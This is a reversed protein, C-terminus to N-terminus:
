PQRVFHQAPETIDATPGELSFSRSYTASRTSTHCTCRCYESPVYKGTQYAGLFPSVKLRRNHFLEAARIPRTDRLWSLSKERNYFIEIYEFLSHHAAQYTLEHFHYTLETKLLHFFSKGVANDWCDGKREHEACLRKPGGVPAPRLGSQSRPMWVNHRRHRLVSSRGQWDHFGSCSVRMVRCLLTVPHLAKEAEILPYRVEDRNDLHGTGPLGGRGPREAVEELPQRNRRQDGLRRVVEVATTGEEMAMRTAALKSERDYKRAM